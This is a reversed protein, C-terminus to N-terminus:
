DDDDDREDHERGDWHCEVCNNFNSIKKHEKQVNSKSHEHCGYCTYSQYNSNTHCLECRQNAGEHNLPFRHNLSAPTWAKTSHCASCQGSFHNAPRDGTHCNTCNTAGGASHDFSAPEWATTSHCASCQANWHNVPTDNTHCAKCDGTGQVSHDMSVLTWSAPSHCQECVEGFKGKHADDGSHCSVCAASAGQFTLDLHCDECVVKNHGGTLIFGTQNHDFEVRAWGRPTHCAGCKLGLAGLHADEERHCDVCAQSTAQLDAKSGRRNHCDLCAIDEHEGVLPFTFENHNFDAGYTDLGDHCEMCDPSFIQNHAQVFAGDEEQHCDVCNTPDFAEFKSTHCDVCTVLDQDRHLAHGILSYGLFEHFELIEDSFITLSATAGQHETHCARCNIKDSARYYAGHFTEAVKIEAVTEEHCEVCRNSMHETSWPTTHCAGCKGTLAAHSRVGGIPASGQVANLEGPSFIASGQAAFAAGFVFVAVLFALFGSTSLCGLPRKKM